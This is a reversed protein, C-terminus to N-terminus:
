GKINVNKKLERNHSNVDLELTVYGRTKTAYNSKNNTTKNNENLYKQQFQACPVFASLKIGSSNLYVYFSLLVVLITYFFSM